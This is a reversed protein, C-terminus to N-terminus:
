RTPHRAWNLAPSTVALHLLTVFLLILTARALLPNVLTLWIGGLAGGALTMYSLLAFLFRRLRESILGVMGYFDDLDDLYQLLREM